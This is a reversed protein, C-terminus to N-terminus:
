LTYNLQTVPYTYASQSLYLVQFKKAAEEDGPNKDPHYQM